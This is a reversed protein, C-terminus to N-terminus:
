FLCHWANQRPWGTRVEASNFVHGRVASDGLHLLEDLPGLLLRRQRSEDGDRREDGEREASAGGRERIGARGVRPGLQDCVWTDFVM